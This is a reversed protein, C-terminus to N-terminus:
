SNLQDLMLKIGNKLSTSPKWSLEILSKEINAQSRNVIKHNAPKFNKNVIKLNKNTLQRIIDILEGISTEIGSGLNYIENHKGNKAAFYIGKVIDSVYLFDRTTDTNNIKITSTKSIQNLISPILMNSNQRPGFTNFLRVVIHKKINSNINILGKEGKNKSISYIEIPNTPHKEDVPLYKPEGYVGLTSVFVFTECFSREAHKIVNKIAYSNIEYALEPNENCKKLDTLSALHFWTKCSPISSLEKTIDWKLKKIMDFNKLGNTSKYYSAVISKNKKLLFEILHSGIFGSAGTIFADYM